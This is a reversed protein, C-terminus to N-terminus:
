APAACSHNSVRWGPAIANNTAPHPASAFGFGRPPRSTTRPCPSVSAVATADVLTLIRTVEYESLLNIQLDLDARKDALVTMRNQSVLVFTSLFIAELSVIMTLLGFPFPDFPKVGPIWRLNITIWVIFWVAHLYVNRKRSREPKEARARQRSGRRSPNSGVEAAM